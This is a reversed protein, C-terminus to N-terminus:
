NYVFTQQGTAEKEKLQPWYEKPEDTIFPGGGNLTLMYGRNGPLAIGSAEWDQCFAGSWVSIADRKHTKNYEYDTAVSFKTM